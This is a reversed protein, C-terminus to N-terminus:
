TIAAIKGAVWADLDRWLTNAPDARQALAILRQYSLSQLREPAAMKARLDRLLGRKIHQPTSLHGADAFTLVLAGQPPRLAELLALNRMLQFWPGAFPCPRHDADADIGSFVERVLEWYRIGKASLACRGRLGSIPNAQDVYDGSCQVKGKNPGRSIPKRQSCAGPAAETFKCEFLLTTLPSRAVADVRTVASENENLPNGHESWEIDVSWPGGAPVGIEAAVAGFIADKNAACKLSGFVDISLAQSSTPSDTRDFPFHPLPEIAGLAAPFLNRAIHPPIKPM